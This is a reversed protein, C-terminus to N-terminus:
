CDSCVVPPIRYAGSLVAAKPLYMRMTLVFPGAPAPLWNAEHNSPPDAQLYLDLSGDAGYLLGSTRSGIAYRHIPNEVLARHEDFMTISWFADVPPTEGKAFHLVFRHGGSLERGGSDHSAMSYVAEDAVNGWIFDMAMYARLLYNTGFVGVDRPTWWGDSDTETELLKRGVARLFPTGMAGARALGRTTPADLRASAFGHEPDIGIRTLQAVFAADGEPPPNRQMLKTMTDYFTVMNMGAVIAPPPEPLLTRDRPEGIPILGERGPETLTMGQQLPVVRPLDQEGDVLIRAVLFVVSTPCRIVTTGAAASGKWDPGVLLYQQEGTGTTRLGVYAFSNTYYDNFQVVYYRGHMDPLHLLVPGRDLFVWATSLLTDVNASVASKVAPTVLNPFHHFRNAASPPAGTLVAGMMVRRFTDTLVLPYGYLYAQLGLSFAYEERLCAEDRDDCCGTQPVGAACPAPAHAVQTGTACGGMSALLLM